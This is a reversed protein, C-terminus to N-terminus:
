CRDAGRQSAYQIVGGLSRHRLKRLEQEIMPSREIGLIPLAKSEQHLSYKRHLRRGSAILHDFPEQRFADIRVRFIIATISRILERRAHSRLRNQSKQYVGAGLLDFFFPGHWGPSRGYVRRYFLRDWDNFHAAFGAPLAALAYGAM